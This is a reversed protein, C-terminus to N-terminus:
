EFVWVLATVIHLNNFSRYWLYRHRYWRGSHCCWVSTCLCKHLQFKLHIVKQQRRKPTTWFIILFSNYREVVKMCFSGHHWYKFFIPNKKLPMKQRTHESKRMKIVTESSAILNPSMKFLSVSFSASIKKWSTWEMVIKTNWKCKTNICTNWLETNTTWQSKLNILKFIHNIHTSPNRKILHNTGEQWLHFSPYRM